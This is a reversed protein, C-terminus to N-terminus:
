EATQPQAVVIAAEPAEVSLSEMLRGMTESLWYCAYIHDYYANTYDNKATLLENETDLLDLLTRRGVNFQEFYADRTKEAALMRQELIPLRRTLTDVNSWALRVDRDVDRKIIEANQKAQESLYKTEEIRAKDAGGNLLNYDMRIMAQAEKEHGRTGDLNNDARMSLDARVQPHFPAKAGEEQALSAEHESMAAWLAPHQRYAIQIADEVKAPASDCCSQGPDTLADPAQGVLRQYRTKADELNGENSRLNAEALALRGTTQDLDSRTGVGADARLKIKDFIQEHQTLNSQTNELLQQRKMVDLYSQVTNLAISESLDTVSYGASDAQAQTQEVASKTAFGDYLMQTAEIEAEGRSLSEHDPRTSPNQTREFGIGLTLDVRPYYGSRAQDVTKDVSYRRNAEALVQPNQKLTKDVAGQLTESLAPNSAIATICAAVLTFLRSTVM